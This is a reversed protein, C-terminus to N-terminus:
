PKTVNITNGTRAQLPLKVSAIYDTLFALLRYTRSAFVTNLRDVADADKTSVSFEVFAHIAEELKGSILKFAVRATGIWTLAAALWGHKASWTDLLGALLTEENM